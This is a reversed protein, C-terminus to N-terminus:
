SVAAQEDEHGCRRANITHCIDRDVSLRGRVPTNCRPHHCACGGDGRRGIERKLKAHEQEIKLRAEELEKHWERLQELGMSPPAQNRERAGDNRGSPPTEGNHSDEVCGELVGAVFCVRSPHHSGGSSGFDSIAESKGVLLDHFSESVYNTMGVFEGGIPNSGFPTVDLRHADGAANHQGFPFRMQVCRALIELSFPEGRSLHATINALSFVVPRLYEQTPRPGLFVRLQHGLSEYDFNLPGSVRSARDESARLRMVEFAKVVPDPNTTRAPRVPVRIQELGGGTTVIFDLSGFHVLMGPVWARAHNAMWLRFLDVLRAFGRGPTGVTLIEFRQSAVRTIAHRDQITLL